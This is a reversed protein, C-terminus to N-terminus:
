RGYLQAVYADPDAQLPGPPAAAVFPLNRYRGAVDLGYGLLLDDTVPFGAFRVPVPVIRRTRRDFLTCVEVSAPGRGRLENLIYSCTLGTDVVDEVLVVHRRHVDHDLDKTIRVRGTGEAYTSIGLFDVQVSVTMRRVLDALFFMSGKLVAVLLVGDPYTSSLQCALRDAGASLDSVSFVPRPGGPTM